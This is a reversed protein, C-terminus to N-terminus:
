KFLLVWKYLVYIYCHPCLLQTCLLMWLLIIPACYNPACYCECYYSPSLGIWLLGLGSSSPGMASPWLLEPPVLQYMFIHEFCPKSIHSCMTGGGIFMCARTMHGLFAVWLWIHPVPRAWYQMVHHRSWHSSLIIWMAKNPLHFTNLSMPSTIGGGIM